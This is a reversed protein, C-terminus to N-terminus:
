SPARLVYAELLELEALRDVVEDVVLEVEASRDVATAFEFALLIREERARNHVGQRLKVEVHTDQMAVVPM